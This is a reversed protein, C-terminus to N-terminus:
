NNYIIENNYIKALNSLNKDLSTNTLTIVLEFDVLFINKISILTM